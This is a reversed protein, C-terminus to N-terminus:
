NTYAKVPPPNFDALAARFLAVMPEIEEPRAGRALETALGRHFIGSTRRVREFFEMDQHGAARAIWWIWRKMLLDMRRYIHDTASALVPDSRRALQIEMASIFESSQAVTWALESIRALREAPHVVGTLGARYIELSLRMSREAVAAMLEAKTRFHYQLAGLSVGAEDAVAQVGTTAYGERMLVATAAEMVKARTAARRNGQKRRVQRDGRGAVIGANIM